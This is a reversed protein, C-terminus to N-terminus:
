RAITNQVIPTVRIAGAHRRRIAVTMRGVRIAMPDRGFPGLHLPERGLDVLQALGVAVEVRLHLPLATIVLALQLPQALLHALQGFAELLQLGANAGVQRGVGPALVGGKGTRGM